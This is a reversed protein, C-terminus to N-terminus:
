SHEIKLGQEWYSFIHFHYHQGIKPNEFRGIQPKERGKRWVVMTMGISPQLQKLVLCSVAGITFM